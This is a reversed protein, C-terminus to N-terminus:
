KAEKIIEKFYEELSIGSEYFGKIKIKNNVLVDSVKDSDDTYDYVRIEENNIVKYNNTNLEKELLVSVKKSDDTKIVLCKSCELDLEEKSLEKILKGNELFGFENALLYLESLIHSSILLTIGNDSLKKFTDRLESIGIPDLGNIPEDLIVFDPSNLIALAIGLRQKMGLSFTKIKKKGTGTLNVLELVKNIQNKDVIGRQITYYKLNDYASLNPYFAPYEILSGVRKKNDFLEDNESCTNFLEFTGSTPSALTTIIKMLTTKGAGNRGILGYIDGKKITINVNDLVVNKNYQKTLNNTKLVVEKM